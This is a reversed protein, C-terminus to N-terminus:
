TTCVLVDTVLNLSYSLLTKVNRNMKKHVAARPELADMTDQVHSMTNKM